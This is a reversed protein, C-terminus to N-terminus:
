VDIENFYRRSSADQMSAESLGSGLRVSSSHVIYTESRRKWVTGPLVRSTSCYSFFQPADHAGGAGNVRSYQMHMKCREACGRSELLLRSTECHRFSLKLLQGAARFETTTLTPKVEVPIGSRPGGPHGGQQSWDGL